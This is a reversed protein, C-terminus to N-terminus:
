RSRSVTVQQIPLIVKLKLKVVIIFLQEYYLVLHLYFYVNLKIKKCFLCANM